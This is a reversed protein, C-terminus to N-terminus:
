RSVPRVSRGNYRLGSYSWDADYSVFNLSCAYYSGGTGRTGSWYYGYTGHLDLDTGLRCGAAPLFISRGNPGTFRRGKVGNVTTWEHKCKDKLEIFQDETPMQWSGVWKVHAVDYQTGCISSGLYHCSENSGDCHKYTSWSYDLKEDTEGWAYYGGDGEPKNAGVNCCAWKTGSPLGLDILHPHNGNPCARFALIKLQENARLKSEESADPHTRQFDWIAERTGAKIAADLEDDETVKQWNFLIAILPIVVILVSFFLISKLLNRKGKWEREKEKEPPYKSDGELLVCVESANQPRLSCDPNMLTSIAHRLTTSITSPYPFQRGNPATDGVEVEPPTSGTVLKYLTAGLAFFDTWPGISKSQQAVQELPAYGPTYAMSSSSLTARENASLQKSAGFDILTCHGRNDRMINGPKVDLHFLGSAHMTELADLVQLTVDLAEKESLPQQRTQESLSTGDVLDMVYYSTGNADFLDTVHIIHDNHLDFIRRAERRFKELQSQFVTTNEDNSVEVMIGDASRHNTGRMFFEKVAVQRGLTTHEAVYTNGFGGSALYRVIRYRSGLVTGMPLMQQQNIQAM